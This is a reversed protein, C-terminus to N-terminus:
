VKQKMFEDLSVTEGVLTKGKRREAWADALEDLEDVEAKSAILSGKKRVKSSGYDIVPGDMVM